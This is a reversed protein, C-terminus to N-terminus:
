AKTNSLQILTPAGAHASGGVAPRQADGDAHYRTVERHFHQVAGENRGFIFDGGSYRNADQISQVVPYDEDRTVKLMVGDFQRLVARELKTEPVRRTLTFIHTVSKGAEGSPYVICITAHDSWAGALSLNPFVIHNPIISAGLEATTAGSRVKWQLDPLAFSIRQHRGFYDVATVNPVLQAGVTRSHLVDTHYGELYGEFALRWNPGPVEHYSHLTWTELGLSELETEFPGLWDALDVSSNPDMTAWILGHREVSPLAVLRDIDAPLQGVHDPRRVLRLEGDCGYGWGHYPCTFHKRNGRGEECIEAGRHLCSNLLVRAVGDTGRVILLSRGLLRVAKYDGARSFEASLGVVVPEAQFLRSMERQHFDPDFYPKRPVSLVGPALDTTGNEIHVVM